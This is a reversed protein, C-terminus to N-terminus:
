SVLRVCSLVLTKKIGMLDMVTNIRYVASGHVVEMAPTIDTRYRITFKTLVTPTERGNEDIESGSWDQKDAWVTCVTSGAGVRQGFSDRSSTRQARITVQHRFMAPNIMQAKTM